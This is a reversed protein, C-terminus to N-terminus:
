VFGRKVLKSVHYVSYFLELQSNSYKNAVTILMNVCYIQTCYMFDFFLHVSLVICFLLHLFFM